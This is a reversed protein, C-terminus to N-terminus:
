SNCFKSWFANEREMLALFKSNWSDIEEHQEHTHPEPPIEPEFLIVREINDPIDEFRTYTKVEGKVIVDFRHAM